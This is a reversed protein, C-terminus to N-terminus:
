RLLRLPDLPTLYKRIEFHLHAGTVAGTRGSLAVTGGQKVFAGEEVTTKLNHAYVTIYGDEHRMIVTNGYGDKWGSFIV